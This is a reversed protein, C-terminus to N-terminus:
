FLLQLDIVNEWQSGNLRWEKKYGCREFGCREFLRLSAVNHESVSASLQHLSLVTRAYECLKMLIATGIGKGRLEKDYVLIGVGARRNHADYDFLDAFGVAVGDVEAVFRVQGSVNIDLHSTNIYEKLNYRSLPTRTDSCSWLTTDNEWQYLIELDEPELARLTIEGCM